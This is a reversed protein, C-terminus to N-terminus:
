IRALLGEIRHKMVPQGKKTRKYLINTKTNKKKKRAANQQQKARLESERDEREKALANARRAVKKKREAAGAREEERIIKKMPAVTGGMQKLAKAKIGRLRREKEGTRKKKRKREELTM